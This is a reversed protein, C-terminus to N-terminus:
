QLFNEFLEFTEPFGNDNAELWEQWYEMICDRIGEAGGDIYPPLNMLYSWPNVSGVFECVESVTGDIASTETYSLISMLSENKIAFFSKDEHFDIFENVRLMTVKENFEDYQNPLFKCYDISRWKIEKKRTREMIQNLMSEIRDTVM